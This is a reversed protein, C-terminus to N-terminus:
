VHVTTPKYEIVVIKELQPLILNAFEVHDPHVAYEAIGEVSEFVHTFGQHM